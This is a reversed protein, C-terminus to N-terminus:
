EKKSKKFTDKPFGTSDSWKILPQEGHRAHPRDTHYDTFCPALVRATWTLGVRTPYPRVRGLGHPIPREKRQSSRQHELYPRARFELLMCGITERFVLSLNHSSIKIATVLVIIFCDGHVLLIYCYLYSISLIIITHIFVQWSRLKYLFVIFLMISFLRSVVRM